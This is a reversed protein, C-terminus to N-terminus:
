AMQRLDHSVEFEAATAARVDDLSVGPAIEVLMMGGGNPKLHFVGLETILMGVVGMGTLPLTCTPLVRPQGKRDCHEMTVLVRAPSSVLDMAGGMGKVLKGPILWSALDGNSAVQMSGLITM